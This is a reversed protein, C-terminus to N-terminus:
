HLYLNDCTKTSRVVVFLFQETCLLMELVYEVNRYEVFAFMEMMNVELLASEIVFFVVSLKRVCDDNTINTDDSMACVNKEFGMVCASACVVVVDLSM